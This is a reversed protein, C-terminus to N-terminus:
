EDPSLGAKKANDKTITTRSKLSDTYATSGDTDIRGIWQLGKGPSTQGLSIHDLQNDCGASTCTLETSHLSECTLIADGQLTHSLVGIQPNLCKHFFADYLNLGTYYPELSNLNSMFYDIIKWKAQNSFNM